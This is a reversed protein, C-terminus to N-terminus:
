RCARRHQEEVVHEALEVVLADARAADRVEGGALRQDRGRARHRAPTARRRVHQADVGARTRPPARSRSSSAPARPRADRRARRRRRRDAVRERAHPASSPRGSGSASPASSSASPSPRRRRRRPARAARLRHAVADSVITTSPGTTPSAAASGRPRRDDLAGVRSTPGPTTGRTRTAHDLRARGLRIARAFIPGSRGGIRPTRRTCSPIVRIDRARVQPKVRNPGTPCRTERGGDPGVGPVRLPVVRTAYSALSMVTRLPRSGTRSRGPIYM